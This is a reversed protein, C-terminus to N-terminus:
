VSCEELTSDPTEIGLEKRSSLAAQKKRDSWLRVKKLAQNSLGPHDKHRIEEIATYKSDSLIKTGVPSRVIVTTWGEDAGLGGFSLDAYEASFDSCFKCAQRKMFKLDSLRVTFVEGSDMHVILNEKINIKRVQDWQFGAIRAIKQRETEGFIFNGSCFLGFCIKISDSPYINLTQMKRMAKIQCPTGVFAVRQLGKSLIPNFGANRSRTSYYDSVSKMGYATDFFFGAASRIDDETAALFSEREFPGVPKTVVAGDIRGTQYLYVLLATVVGGDTATRRIAPDKARAITIDSVRGMPATWSVNRKTEEELKDIAPCIEYCLGGEICKNKDAYRPQGASDLELAGYNIASCFAVCAGCRQCLGPNVVELILNSFTKM